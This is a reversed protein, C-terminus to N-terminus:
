CALCKDRWKCKPCRSLDEIVIPMACNSDHLSGIAEDQYHTTDGLSIAVYEMIQCNDSLLVVHISPDVVEECNSTWRIRLTAIVSQM